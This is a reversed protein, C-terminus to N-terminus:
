RTARSYSICARVAPRTDPRDLLSAHLSPPDTGILDDRLEALAPHSDDVQRTV